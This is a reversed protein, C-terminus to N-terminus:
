AKIEGDIGPKPTVDPIVNCTCSRSPRPVSNRASSVMRKMSESRLCGCIPETVVWNM